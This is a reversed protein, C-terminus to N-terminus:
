MKEAILYASNRWGRQIDGLKNEERYVRPKLAAFLQLLENDQLLFDPNRPGSDDIRLATHTQYFLLGGPRLAAVLAPALVRELFWSVVIVDFRNPEPPQVSVDRVETHLSLNQVAASDSLREIAVASIDWAYTELGARALLLANAGLGCALDLACGSNPLLHQNEEVVKAANTPAERERYRTNWKAEIESSM